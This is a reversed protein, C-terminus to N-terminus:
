NTDKEGGRTRLSKNIPNIPATTPAIRLQKEQTTILKAQALTRVNTAERTAIDAETLLLSAKGTQTLYDNPFIEIRSDPFWASLINYFAPYATEMWMRTLEGAMYDLPYQSNNIDTDIIWRPLGACRFINLWFAELCSDIGELSASSSVLKSGDPAYIRRQSEFQQDIEDMVKPAIAEDEDEGGSITLMTQFSNKARLYLDGGAHIFLQYADCVDKSILPQGYDTTYVGPLNAFETTYYHGAHTITYRPPELLTQVDAISRNEVRITGDTYVFLDAKGRLRAYKWADTISKNICYTPYTDALVGDIYIQPMRMVKDPVIEILLRQLNAPLPHHTTQVLM